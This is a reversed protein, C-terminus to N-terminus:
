VLLKMLVPLVGGSSLVMSMSISPSTAVIVRFRGSDKLAILGSIIASSGTAKAQNASMESTRAIMMVPAPIAKQAPPSTLQNLFPMSSGSM